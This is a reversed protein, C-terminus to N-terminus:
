MVKIYSGNEDDYGNNQAAGQQGELKKAELGLFWCESFNLIEQHEYETMRSGFQRLVETSVLLVPILNLIVQHKVPLSVDRYPCKCDHVVHRM